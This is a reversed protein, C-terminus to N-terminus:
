VRANRAYYKNFPLFKVQKAYEQLKIKDIITWDWEDFNASRLGKCALYFSDIVAKEPTAMLYNNTKVFGWYLNRSIHTYEFERDKNSITKSKATSVSTISFPFQSLIGYFNLATELSIYSPQVLFNAVSFDLPLEHGFYYKGSGLRSIIKARELRQITKYLSNKNSYGLVSGLTAPTFFNSRTNKLATIVKSVTM